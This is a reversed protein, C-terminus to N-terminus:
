IWLLALGITAGFLSCALNVMNNDLWPWGSSLEAGARRLTTDETIRGSTPDRYRAQLTAGLLSDFLAAGVGIATIMLWVVPSLLAPQLAWGVATLGAAGALSGSIGLLTIGGSTGKAVPRRTIIDRPATRSWGGIETAWTDATAGALAALYVLYLGELRWLGYVLAVLLPIGGNALVQVMNRYGPHLPKVAGASVPGLHSTTRRTLRTLISSLVFFAVMPWVWSWGGALFLFLGLVWATLFGSVSLAKATLALGLIIGSGLAWLLFSPVMGAPLGLYFYVFLAVAVPVTLNDTGQRSQIEAITAITATLVIAPVFQLPSLEVGAFPGLFVLGAGTLLSTGVWMAATGPGSKRDHWLRFTNRGWRGGVWAALPDGFALALIGIQLALPSREWFLGVLVVFALPFYVTGYSVRETAHMSKFKDLRLTVLNIAIFLIGTVLPWFPERFIFRCLFIMVGVIVHVMRRTTDVNVKLRTAILETIGLLLLIAGLFLLWTLAPSSSLPLFPM